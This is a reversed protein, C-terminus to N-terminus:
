ESSYKAAIKKNKLVAFIYMKKQKTKHLYIIIKNDYRTSTKTDDPM